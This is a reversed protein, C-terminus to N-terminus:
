MACIQFLAGNEGASFRLSRIALACMTVRMRTYAPITVTRVVAGLGDYASVTAEVGSSRYDLKVRRHCSPLSVLIDGNFPVLARDEFVDAIIMPDSSSFDFGCRSFSTGVPGVPLRCFQVCRMCRRCKRLRADASSVTGLAALVGASLGLGASLWERRCLIPRTM